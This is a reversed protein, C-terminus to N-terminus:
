LRDLLDSSKKRRFKGHLAYFRIKTNLSCPVTGWSMVIVFVCRSIWASSTEPSAYDSRLLGIYTLMGATFITWFGVAKLILAARKRRKALHYSVQNVVELCVLAVTFIIWKNPVLDKGIDWAATTILLLAYLHLLPRIWPPGGEAPYVLDFIRRVRDKLSLIPECGRIFAV